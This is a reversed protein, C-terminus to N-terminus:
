GHRDARARACDPPAPGETCLCSRHDVRQCTSQDLGARDDRHDNSCDPCLPALLSSLHAGRPATDLYPYGASTSSWREYKGRWEKLTFHLPAIINILLISWCYRLPRNIPWYPGSKDRGPDGVRKDFDM